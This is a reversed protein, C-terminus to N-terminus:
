CLMRVFGPLLEVGARTGYCVSRNHAEALSFSCRGACLPSLAFVHGGPLWCLAQM